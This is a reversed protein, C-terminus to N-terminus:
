HPATPDYDDADTSRAIAEQAEAEALRARVSATVLAYADSGLLLRRPMPSHGTADIVAGAMRGADGPISERSRERRGRVAAAPTDDYAPLSRAVTMSSGGFETRASGPEVICTEIGFPALEERLAEVLGENAWKTLHYLSMGPAAMQGAMSSIQVIKGGGQERLHPVAARILALSGMVNTEVQRRIDDDDLEELAGFLGFGANAVVVDVRGRDRWAGDVASRVRLGDTVDVDHVWLADPHDLLLRDLREPRRQLAIVRDGRALLQRTLELGLGSSTGTILWTSPM